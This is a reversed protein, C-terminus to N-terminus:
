IRATKGQSPLVGQTGSGSGLGGYKQESTFPGSDDNLGSRVRASVFSDM